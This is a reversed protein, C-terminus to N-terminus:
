NIVTSEIPACTSVGAGSVEYPTHDLFVSLEETTPDFKLVKNVKDVSEFIYFSGGWHAFAWATIETGGTGALEYQEIVNGTTKDIESIYQKNIGPSFAYLKARGTGTLEPTNEYYTPFTSLPTYNMSNETDIMGFCSHPADVGIFLSDTSGGVRDLSFAMGFHHLGSSDNDFHHIKECEKNNVNVRYLASNWYLIWANAERDVAMSFPVTSKLCSPSFLVKFYKKNPDSPNFKILRFSSDILYIFQADIPCNDDVCQDKKCENIGCTQKLIRSQGDSSCTYVNNDEGCFVSKPECDVCGYGPMCFSSESRDHCNEKVYYQSDKCELAYHEDCEFNNVAEEPTMFCDFGSLMEYFAGPRYGTKNEVPGEIPEDVDKEQPDVDEGESDNFKMNDDHCGMFLIGLLLVTLIRLKM